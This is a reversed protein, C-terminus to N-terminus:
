VCQKRKLIKIRNTIERETANSKFTNTTEENQLNASIAFISYNWSQSKNSNVVISKGGIFEIRLDMKPAYTTQTSFRLDGRHQPTQFYHFPNDM